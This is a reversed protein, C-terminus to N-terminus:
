EKREKLRDFIIRKLDNLEIQSMEIQINWVLAVDSVIHVVILISEEEEYRM